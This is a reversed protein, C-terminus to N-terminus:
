RTRRLFKDRPRGEGVGASRAVDLVTRSKEVTKREKVFSNVGMSDAHFDAMLVAPKGNDIALEAM